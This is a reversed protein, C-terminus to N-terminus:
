PVDFWSILRIGGCLLQILFCGFVVYGFQERQQGVIFGENSFSSCPWKRSQPLNGRQLVEQHRILSTHIFSKVVVAKGCCPDVLGFGGLVM